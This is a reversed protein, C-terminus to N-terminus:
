HEPAWALERCFGDLREMLDAATPDVVLPRRLHEAYLACVEAPHEADSGPVLLAPPEISALERAAGFPQEGSALFRTTAAVSPADFGLMMAIARERIAPPLAAYLPRLAEVGRALAQRGAQEMVGFAAVQAETLGRERGAYVPAMLVLGLARRPHRLAFRLAVASGASVGGVIAREIGLHSLLVAVDDALQDWSLTGAHLSRGSGRLDPALIRYSRALAAVRFLAARHDALGGHLFVVPRGQGIEVAYLRTGHSEFWIEREAATDELKPQNSDTMSKEKTQTCTDLGAASVGKGGRSLAGAANCSARACRRRPSTPRRRFRFAPPHVDDPAFPL